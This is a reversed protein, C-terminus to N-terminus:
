EGERISIIKIGLERAKSACAPCPDLPLITGLNNVRILLITRTTPRKLMIRMEAHIGGGEKSFRPRNVTTMILDGKANFALAAVKQHCYSKSAKRKALKIHETKIQM